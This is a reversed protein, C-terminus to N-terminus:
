VEVTKATKLGTKWRNEVSIWLTIWM